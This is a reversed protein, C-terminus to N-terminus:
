QGAAKDMKSAVKVGSLGNVYKAVGRYLSEAIRQRYEATRLRREDTPNSVFSIEALISPMNAGILVIFPAKKVGRDRIAPSKAALSSHLSQQVDGAFERSEEIKEKLAIKKVLDQLEYISKESVANERAAVELAEPSSTFNLYYTEVGRAAPDNSSNAHISIFLDAREQNAIATRTELPIFTDDKRTYVVDAGLRAELLKGLRRGVELVLDKEALGNPGVTGTDHGGHGPDIVIKGIKLGLARILSRNGSATPKAERVELDSEDRSQRESSGAKARTHSVVTHRTKSVTAEASETEASDSHSQNPATRSTARNATATQQSDDDDADVVKKVPPAPTKQIARPQESTSLSPSEKKNSADRALPRAQDEESRGEVGSRGEGTRDRVTTDTVDLRAVPVKGAEAQLDSKLSASAAAPSSAAEGEAQDTAASEAPAKPLRGRANKGHIDIILRYPNPILFADYDSLDKVELVVRTRGPQFQAVRIKKLFGDDVDFSKGVLTSALRTGRLDFFIRDPHAIRQSGFKVDAELDIAVRSYDQGSWHRIRTVRPFASAPREASAQSELPASSGESGASSGTKARQASEKTSKKAAEAQQDLDNLADQADDALHHHPYRRLFEQFAARADDADDLDDKYVEGITFLADYRFKSGPYERRLFKYESIAGKLIKDDEFRRGMEVMVEAAAVVSPDAKTSVPAGLYINRYANLVRQYDRRTREASPRGNLAERVREAATFRERAWAEGHRVRAPAQTAPLVTLLLLAVWRLGRQSSSTKV